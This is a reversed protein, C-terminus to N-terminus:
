WSQRSSSCGALATLRENGAVGPDGETEKCAVHQSRAQRGIRIDASGRILGVVVAAVVVVALVMAVKPIAAASPSGSKELLTM